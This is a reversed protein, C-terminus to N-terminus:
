RSLHWRAAAHIMTLVGRSSIQNRRGGAISAGGSNPMPSSPMAGCLILRAWSTCGTTPTSPVCAAKGTSLSRICTSGRLERAVLWRSSRAIARWWWMSAAEGGLIFIKKPQGKLIPELRDIYGQVIDGVIGRNKVHRNDLLENWEAGDTLSNGLMVIDKKGIPLEDFLTARRGYYPDTNAQAWGILAMVATVAFLLMRHNM